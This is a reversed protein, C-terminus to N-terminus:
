TAYVAKIEDIQHQQLSVPEGVQLSQHYTRMGQEADYAMDFAEDLSSGIALLGHNRLLVVKLGPQARFLRAAEIGPAETGPCAWSAVPIPAGAMLLELNVVPIPKGIMAFTIAFSSHTHCVANVQPLARLLHTHMPTESSPKRPADIINGNLDVVTIHEPRLDKYKIGGPTIAVADEGARASINGASLYILGVQVAEQVTQFVQERIEAFADHREM